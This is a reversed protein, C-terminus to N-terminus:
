TIRLPVGPRWENTLRQRRLEVRVKYESNERKGAAVQCEIASADCRWTAGGRWTM